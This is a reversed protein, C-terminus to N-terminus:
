VRDSSDTAARPKGFVLVTLATDVRFLRHVFLSAVVLTAFCVSFSAVSVGDWAWSIALAILATGVVDTAAMGFVRARHVGVGPKGFADKYDYTAPDRM